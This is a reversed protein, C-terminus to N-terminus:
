SKETNKAGSFIVPGLSKYDKKLLIFKKKAIGSHAKLTVEVQDMIASRPIGITSLEVVSSLFKETNIRAM